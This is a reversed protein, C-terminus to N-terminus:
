EEVKKKVVVKKKIKKAGAFVPAQGSPTAVSGVPETRRVVAPTSVV